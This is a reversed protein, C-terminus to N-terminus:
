ARSMHLHEVQVGALRYTLDGISRAHVPDHKRRVQVAAEGAVAFAVRDRHEVTLRERGDADDLNGTM